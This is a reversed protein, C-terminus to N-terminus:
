GPGIQPFTLFVTTGEGPASEVTIEGGHAAMIQKCYVLGLGHGREGATGPLTTRVESRFLNPLVDPDVGLGTDRVVLVAPRGAPQLITVVDGPRSFKVANSVLNRLLEGFLDADVLLTAEPHVENRLAVGKAGAAPECEALLSAMHSFLRIESRIPRLSGTQLQSLDLVRDIMAQLEECSTGARELLPHPQEEQIAELAIAIGALPSRLDHSILSVFEDKLRTAAEARDKAERLADEARRRETVDRVAVVLAPKGRYRMERFRLEVPIERCDATLVRTETSPAGFRPTGSEFHPWGDPTIFDLVSRGILGAPEIGVMECFGTNADVILRDELVCIGEFTAESLARFRAESEALAATREAVRTTLGKRDETAAHRDKEFAELLAKDKEDRMIRARDVLAYALLVGGLWYGARAPSSTAMSLTSANTGGVIAVLMGAVVSAYAGVFFRGAKYGRVLATIGAGLLIAPTAAVLAATMRECPGPFWRLLLIQSAGLIAIFLLGFDVNPARERAKLFSRAFLSQAAVAMAGSLFPAPGDSPLCAAAVFVVQVSYLVHNKDRTVAWSIFGYLAMSLLGGYFTGPLIVSLLFASM